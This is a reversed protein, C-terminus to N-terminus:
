EAETRYITIRDIETINDSSRTGLNYNVLTLSTDTVDIRIAQRENAQAKVATYSHTFYPPNIASGSSTAATVHIMGDPDTVTNGDSFDYTIVAEDLYNGEADQGPKIVYTRSYTHDHGSLVLDVGAEYLHPILYQRLKVFAYQEGRTYVGDKMTYDNHYSSGYPSSHYMVIKWKIDEDATEELVQDVFDCHAKIVAQNEATYEQHASVDLTNLVIFLVNNYVFYYDTMNVQTSVSDDYDIGASADRNPQNFHYPFVSYNYSDHNGYVAAMPLRLLEEHNAFHDFQHEHAAYNYNTGSNTYNSNIHDGMSLMFRVGAFHEDTTIQNLTRGWAAEDEDLAEECYLNNIQGRGIQPDGVVAFSFVNADATTFTEPKSIESGAVLQYTYSTDPELGAITAEYAYYGEKVSAAPTAAVTVADEPFHRGLMDATPAYTITSDTNEDCYWTFNLQSEDAGLHLIVNTFSLPHFHDYASQAFKMLPQGLSLKSQMRACYSEVSDTVSAVVSGDMATIVCTVPQFADAVALDQASVVYFSGSATLPANVTHDKGYHDTWSLTALMDETVDTFYYNLEIRNELTLSTGVYSGDSERLDAITVEPTALAQQAETLQNNAPDDIRYNFQEQAAAGYNLMDVLMTDLGKDFMRMAYGRMSDTITEGIQEGADNYITVTLEDGMQKSALGTFTIRYMEGLEGQVSTWQDRSVTTVTDNFVIEAYSADESLNHAYVFFNLSLVDALTASTYFFKDAPVSLTFTKTVTSDATLAATLTVITDEEPPLVTGDAAIIEPHSSTWTIAVNKLITGSVTTPLVLNEKVNNEATNEGKIQDFTLNALLSEPLEKSGIILNSVTIDLDGSGDEALQIGNAAKGNWLNMVVQNIGGWAQKGAKAHHLVPEDDVYGILDGNPLQELRVHFSDGVKKNLIATTPSQGSNPNVFFVLGNDTNHIGVIFGYNTGKSIVMCLGGMYSYYWDGDWAPSVIPMAESTFDFEVVHSQDAYSLPKVNNFIAYVRGGKGNPAGEAYKAAMHYVNDAFEYKVNDASGEIGAQQCAALEASRTLPELVVTALYIESGCTIEVFLEENGGPTMGLDAFPIVIEQATDAATNGDAPTYEADNIKISASETSDLGLYLNESNWLFGLSTGDSMKGSMTWDAESLSGDVTVAAAYAAPHDPAIPSAPIKSGTILNSVKFDIDKSGDEVVASGAFLNMSIMELNASSMQMANESKLVLVDDIYIYLENSPYQEMRVHFTEKLSKNIPASLHSQGSAANICFALGDKTNAIGMCYGEPKGESIVMTFGYNAYNYNGFWGPTIVPLADAYFDFEVVHAQNVASLPTVGKFIAYVRDNAAGTASGDGYRDWMHYVNNTFDFGLNATQKSKGSQGCVPIHSRVLTDLEVVGTFTATGCAIEVNLTEGGRVKLGLDSFPIAMEQVTGTAANEAAPTCAEGNVTLSAAETSDIALYLYDENWLFGFDTGDTLNGSLAWDKEATEGDVTVSIAYAAPHGKLPAATIEADAALVSLPLIGLLMIVALLMSLVRKTM